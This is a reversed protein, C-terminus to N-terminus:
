PSEPLRALRMAGPLRGSDEMDGLKTSSLRPTSTSPVGPPERMMLMTSSPM